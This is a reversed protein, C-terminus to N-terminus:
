KKNIKHSSLMFISLRDTEKLKVKDGCAKCTMCLKRTVIITTEPNGCTKCQVYREIFQNLIGKLALAHDGMLVFSRTRGEGATKSSVGLEYIFFKFLYEVPRELADAVDILNPLVTKVGNGKGEIKVVLKPMKYRYYADGANALGINELAM